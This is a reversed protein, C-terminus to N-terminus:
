CGVRPRHVPRQPCSLPIASPGPEAFQRAGPCCAPLTTLDLCATRYTTAAQEIQRGSRFPGLPGGLQSQKVDHGAVGSQRATRALPGRRRLKLQPMPAGQPRILAHRPQTPQLHEDHTYVCLSFWERFSVGGEVGPKAVCCSGCLALDCAPQQNGPEPTGHRGANGSSRDHVTRRCTLGTRTCHITRVSTTPIGLM